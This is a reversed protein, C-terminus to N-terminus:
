ICRLSKINILIIVYCLHLTISLTKSCNVSPPLVIYTIYACGSVVLWRHLTSVTCLLTYLTCQIYHVSYITCYVNCHVNYVTLLVFCYFYMTCHTFYVTISNVHNHQTYQVTYITCYLNYVTCHVIYLTYLTCSHRMLCESNISAAVVVM